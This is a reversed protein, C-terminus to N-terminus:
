QEAMTDVGVVLVPEADTGIMENDKGISSRFLAV